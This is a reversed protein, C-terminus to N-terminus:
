IWESAHPGTKSGLSVSPPPPLSLRPCAEGESTGFTGRAAGAEGALSPHWGAPGLCRMEAPSGLGQTGTM